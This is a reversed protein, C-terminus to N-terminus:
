LNALAVGLLQYARRAPRTGRVGRTRVERATKAAADPQAQALDEIVVPSVLPSETPQLVGANQWAEALTESVSRSYLREAVEANLRELRAVQVELRQPM